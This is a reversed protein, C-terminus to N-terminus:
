KKGEAVTMTPKPSQELSKERPPLTAFLTASVFNAFRLPSQLIAGEDGERVLLQYRGYDRASRGVPAAGADIVEDIAWLTLLDLNAVLRLNFGIALPPYPRYATLSPFLVADCGTEECVRVFFDQPLPNEVNWASRGTWELLQRESVNVVEFMMSKRLETDVVATLSNAGSVLSRDNHQAVIPLLAVRRVTKPMAAVSHLNQPAYRPGLEPFHATSCGTALLAVACGLIFFRM